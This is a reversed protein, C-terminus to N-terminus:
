LSKSGDREDWNVVNTSTKFSEATKLFQM